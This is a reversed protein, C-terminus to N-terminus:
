GNVKGGKTKNKMFSDVTEFKWDRHNNFTFIFEADNQQRVRISNKGNPFWVAVRNGAFLEFYLEFWKFVENHTM